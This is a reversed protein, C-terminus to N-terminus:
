SGYVEDANFINGIDHVGWVFIRVDFDLAAPANDFLMENMKSRVHDRDVDKCFILLEMSPYNGKKQGLWSLIRKKWWPYGKWKNEFGHTVIQVYKIEAPAKLLSYISKELSSITMPEYM